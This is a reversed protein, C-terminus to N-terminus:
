FSKHKQKYNEFILYIAVSLILVQFEMGGMPHTENAVFSWRGWHYLFIAGLMIPVITLSSLLTILRGYNNIIFGGLIFGIGAFIEAIGIGMFFLESLGMMKAMTPMILKGVGHYIFIGALAFRLPIESIKVENYM